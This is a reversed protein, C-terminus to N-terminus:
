RRSTSRRRASEGGDGASYTDPVAPAPLSPATVPKRSGSSPSPFQQDLPQHPSLGASSSAASRGTGGLKKTMAATSLPSSVPPPPLQFSGESTRRAFLDVVRDEEQEEGHEEDQEDAEEDVHEQRRDQELRHDHELGRDHEHEETDAYEEDNESDPYALEEDLSPKTHYLYAAYGAGLVGAVIAFPAFAVQAYLFVLLIGPIALSTSLGFVANAKAAHLFREQHHESGHRSKTYCWAAVSFQFLAKAGLTVGFMLPAIVTPFFAAAPLLLSGAIAIAIPITFLTQMIAELKSKTTGDIWARSWAYYSLLVNAVVALPFLVFRGWAHLINETTKTLFMSFIAALVAGDFIGSALERLTNWHLATRKNKSRRQYDNLNATANHRQLHNPRERDRHMGTTEDDSDDQAYRRRNDMLIDKHQNYHTPSEM